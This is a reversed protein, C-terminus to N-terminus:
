LLEIKNRSLILLHDKEMQKLVRSTAERTIGLEDALQQHTVSIEKSNYLQTKQKILHLLRTDIKQFAVSNVVDLLEEFRKQYLDFIFETWDPYKKVWEKAKDAPILMIDADEEVIAKIKSTENKMGAFISVICSEGPTLYYLLIERGDEETRIVKISGSIVVPIHKIYSDMNVITEGAVFHKLNGTDEIEKVLDSQFIDKLIM